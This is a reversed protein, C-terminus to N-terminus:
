VKGPSPANVPNKPRMKKSGEEIKLIKMQDLM